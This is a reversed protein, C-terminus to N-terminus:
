TKTDTEIQIEMNVSDVDTDRWIQTIKDVSSQGNDTLM